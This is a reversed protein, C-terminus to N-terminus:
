EKRLLNIGLRDEKKYKKRLYSDLWRVLKASIHDNKTLPEVLISKIKLKRIMFIDNIMQDGIYICSHRDIHNKKLFKSLRFAFPKCTLHLYKVRLKDAIKSIRKKPNNTIIIVELGAKYFEDFLLYAQKSPTLQNYPIITNDLDVLITKIKNNKYFSVPIQYINSCNYDCVISKIM